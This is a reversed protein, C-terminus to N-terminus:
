LSHKNLIVEMATGTKLILKYGIVQQDNIEPMSKLEKVPLTYLEINTIEPLGFLVGTLIRRRLSMEMKQGEVQV